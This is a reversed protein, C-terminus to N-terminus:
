KRGNNLFTEWLSELNYKKMLKAGMQSYNTMLKRYEETLEDVFGMTRLRAEEEDDATVKFYDYENSVPVFDLDFERIKMDTKDIKNVGVYYEAM